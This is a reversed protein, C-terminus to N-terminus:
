LSVCYELAASNFDSVAKVLITVHGARTHFMIDHSLARLSLITIAVQAAEASKRRVIRLQRM